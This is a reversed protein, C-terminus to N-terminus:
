FIKNCNFFKIILYFLFYYNYYVEGDLNNWSDFKVSNNVVQKGKGKIDEEDDIVEKDYYFEKSVVKNLDEVDLLFINQFNCAFNDQIWEQM